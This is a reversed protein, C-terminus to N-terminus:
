KGLASLIEDAAARGGHSKSVKAFVVKGKEDIVFTSPYATERPANWRLGYLNTLVYDPDLVLRFHSPLTKGQMFEGAYQMLGGSPGPYVLVVQAKKEAFKAANAALQATQANCAPCQYGPYGRLVVVVVPGQKVLESLQVAEGQLSPLRFDPASNGVAPINQAAARDVFGLAPVTLLLLLRTPLHLLSSMERNEEVPIIPVVFGFRFPV